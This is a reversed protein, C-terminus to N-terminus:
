PNGSDAANRWEMLFRNEDGGVVRFGLLEYLAKAPNVRMVSLKIPIRRFIAQELLKNLIETGLGKSQHLPLFALYNLFLADEQEIVLIVGIDM